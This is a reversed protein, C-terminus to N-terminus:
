KLNVKGNPTLVFKLDVIFHIIIPVLLSGSAMYIKFIIYGFLGTGLIGKAGQYFHAIGFIVASIIAVTGLSFEFPLGFLFVAMAGRFVIEECIGATAAVFIFALREKKTQPLLFDINGVVLNKSDGKKARWNMIFVFLLAGIIVSTLFGAIFSSSYEESNGSDITFLEKWSFDSVLWVICIILLISWQIVITDKYIKLREIKTVDKKLFLWDSVILFLVAGLLVIGLFIMSMEEKIDLIILFHLLRAFYVFRYIRLYLIIPSVSSFIRLFRLKVCFSIAFPM